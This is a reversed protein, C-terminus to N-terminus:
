DVIGELFWQGVDREVYLRYITGDSLAIDWEDRDWCRGAPGDNWWEGSTRWPGASQVVIGGTVGRRDTTVRIPRGEQMQVRAPVPLRFRRLATHGPASRADPAGPAHPQDATTGEPIPAAADAVFPTMEFAGPKWSDVLRPSGVHTEGMLATLRALLTSVQEPSAQARTFLTWQTVRAPTPEILVRVRDIGAGPPNSELDLLVLTRLTKADRMPAPLQVTRAHVTKDVLRLHTHVIAAGRDARELREALPEFLRGLVFSLPELGEIPWELDLASEFPDEPVWPVLPTSDEGRALRQWLIGRGGLREYVEGAPLAAFHGFTKVGWRRLTELLAEVALEQTRTRRASHRDAAARAVQSHMAASAVAAHAHELQRPATAVRRPRRTYAAAHADRPHTWGGSPPSAQDVAGPGDVASRTAPADLAGPGNPAGPAGERGSAAEAVDRRLERQSNGRASASVNLNGRGLTAPALHPAAAADTTRCLSHQFYPLVDLMEGVHAPRLSIIDPRSQRGSAPEALDRQLEARTSGRDSTSANPTVAGPALRLREFQGLVSVPLQALVECQQDPEIVIVGPRGLAVLAAATQTPAIAIRVPGSSTRRMQDAMERPTGFLRTVGSVDLMVLPGVVEFRPTFTEAITVLASVPLTLSYLCAFM